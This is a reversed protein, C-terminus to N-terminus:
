ADICAMVRFINGIEQIWTQAGEHDDRWKFMSPNNKLFKRLGRFEGSGGNQGLVSDKYSKFVESRKEVQNNCAIPNVHEKQKEKSNSVEM